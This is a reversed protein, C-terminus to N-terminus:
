WATGRTRRTGAAARQDAALVGTAALSQAHVIYDGLAHIDESALRAVADGAAPAPMNVTSAVHGGTAYRAGVPGGTAFRPLTGANLAAMFASGYKEASSAKIVWEGDSAAIPVSDSTPGGPGTVRGGTAYGQVYPTQGVVTQTIQIPIRRNTNISVFRDVAHQAQGTDADVQFDLDYADIAQQLTWEGAALKAAAESAAATGAQGMIAALVPGATRLVNAFRSTANSSREGYVAELRALEDDSANVLDAVLPAGEPGLRSLEDIVGQSVRGSLLLMNSEWAEQAAVQRELEALYHDVSVTFGDYFDQWSDEATETSEAQAEAWERNKEIITDYGGLLDIFSADASAVEEIWKAMEETVAAQAAAHRQLAEAHGDAAVGAAEDARAKLGAEKEARSLGKAEEDLIKVFERAREQDRDTQSWDTTIADRAAKVRQVADAEGLIYGTLDGVAVGLKDAYDILSEPDGGFIRESFSQGMNRGALAKNVSEITAETTKGASDLTSLYEDARARAEAAKQAWNALALTGVVLAGGLVGAAVGATKMSVGLGTMAAKADHIGVALKGLGGIGLATLGGAGALLTTANLIPAPMQGVADVVSEAGQAMQRLVDNAGSGSQILATDFSGGLRELDGVLNDTRIRAQEAAYGQDNVAETWKDIGAAGQEYLVNAARVADSGFITAMASNRQEPTLDRLSQQLNGAFESLGIFNGSADYASIGLEDMTRQAEKSQPTLRQLMAKFSTGADSGVLGASAFATLGATTEEISLGTQDAVLGAQKLAMGLDGVGGQAKGAGAALLDAIHSVDEGGLGFQVMATSAIEAADAVEIAGSAALNLAGTLGGGLIDATSVGAKALEEIAGAAETASYQTDAGAEIAAERLIAMNDASEMTAAAVSSMAADFQAFRTVSLAAFGTLVLGARTFGGAVEDINQRNKGVWEDTKNAADQTAKAATKLGNVLGSVDAGIKVIISRDAM